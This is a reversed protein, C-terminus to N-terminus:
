RAERWRRELERLTAADPERGAYRAQEFARTIDDTVPEQFADVLVPAFEAPTEGPIRPRSREGGRDVVDLYLRRIGGEDRKSGRGGRHFLSRLLGMGDEGIGGVRSAQADTDERDTTRRRLRSALWVGGLVLGLTIALALGRVLFVGADFWGNGSDGTKKHEDGNLPLNQPQIGEFPNKNGLLAHFIKELIWAFPTLTITLVANLLKAAPPGIVPGAFVLAV